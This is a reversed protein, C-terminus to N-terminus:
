EGKARKIYFFGGGESKVTVRSEDIWRYPKSPAHFAEGWEDKSPDDVTGMAGCEVCQLLLCRDELVTSFVVWEHVCDNALGPQGDNECPKKVSMAEDGKDILVHLGLM